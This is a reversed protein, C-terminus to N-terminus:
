DKGGGADGRPRGESIVAHEFYGLVVVIVLAFGTILGALVFNGIGCAVGIAGATWIAAGTTIGEISAGTRIISGAGLRALMDFLPIETDLTVVRRM